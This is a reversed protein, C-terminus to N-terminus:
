NLAQRSVVGALHPLLQGLVHLRRGDDGGSAPGSVLDPLNNLYGEFLLYHELVLCYILSEMATFFCQFANLFSIHYFIYKSWNFDSLIIDADHPDM